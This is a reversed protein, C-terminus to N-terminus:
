NRNALQYPQTFVHSFLHSCKINALTLLSNKGYPVQFPLSMLCRSPSWSNVLYQYQRYSNWPLFSILFTLLAISIFSKIELSLHSKIRMIFPTVKLIKNLPHYSWILRLFIVRVSIHLNYSQIKKIAEIVFKELSNPIRPLFINRSYKYKFIM